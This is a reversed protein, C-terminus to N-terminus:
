LRTVSQPSDAAIRATQGAVVVARDGEAVLIVCDGVPTHRTDNDAPVIDATQDAIVVRVARNVDIVRKDAATNGCGSITDATQDTQISRRLQELLLQGDLRAAYLAPIIDAARDTRIDNVRSLIDRDATELDIVAKARDSCLCEAATQDTILAGVRLLVPCASRQVSRGPMAAFLLLAGPVTLAEVLLCVMVMVASPLLAPLSDATELLMVMRAYAYAPPMIPLQSGCVRIFTSCQRFAPPKSRGASSVKGSLLSFFRHPDPTRNQLRLLVRIGRLCEGILQAAALQTNGDDATHDADVTLIMHYLVTGALTRHVTQIGHTAHDTQVLPMM